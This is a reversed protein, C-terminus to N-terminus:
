ITETYTAGEEWDVVKIEYSVDSSEVPEWPNHSGRKTLTFSTIVYTKNSELAPLYVPYYNDVGDLTTDIVLMTRRESWTGSAAAGPEQSSANPYPYFAHESSYTNAQALTAGVSDFLLHDLATDEHRLRNAWSYSEAGKFYGRNTVVDTLYIGRIRLEKSALESNSFSRRISQLVVKSVLRRVAITKSSNSASVTEGALEGSMVFAAAANDSLSSQANRVADETKLASLDPANVVALIDKTGTSVSAKVLSTSASAYAEVVGSEDCIFLQVSNVKTEDAGSVGTAKTQAPLGTLNVTLEVAEGAKEIDLPKEENSCSTLAACLMGALYIIKKM